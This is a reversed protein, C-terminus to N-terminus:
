FYIGKVEAATATVSDRTLIAEGVRCGNKIMDNIGIGEWGFGCIHLGPLSSLLTSRWKLLAPYGRELQPISSRPRLVDTFVPENRIKLITRTDDFARSILTSDDLELREPHRRGGVLTEFLIHNEPARGPFMNSSFLSGLTFRKECEPILYGFGPPLKTENTFGFVVSAIKAEPISNLPCPPSIPRLLQLAKNVPLALVLNKASFTEKETKVHWNKGEKKIATARCDTKLEKGQQLEKTLQEPLQQMGNSFSIMAPLQLSGRKKKKGERMKKFLGRLVSGTERELRRVGPMVSDITLRDCDGAYTGTFVADVYPLLAPGFRHHIWKAVTPEGEIPPRFLEALVRVKATWPILPAMLIKRPTQPILNLRDNLYVYRVFDILPAKVTEGDLGTENLLKQSEPCNDLFGHPGIEAIFGDRCSSRVAGGTRSEKELVLFRHSPNQQKLVHATTLGSLGAGIIVTDLKRTM